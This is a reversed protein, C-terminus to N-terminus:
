TGQLIARMEYQAHMSALHTTHVCFYVTKLYGFTGAKFIGDNNARCLLILYLEYLLHGSWSIAKKLCIVEWQKVGM